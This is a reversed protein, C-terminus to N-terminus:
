NRGKWDDPDLKLISQFYHDYDILENYEADSLSLYADREHSITTLMAGKTERLFAIDEPLNPQEWEYLSHSVRKIIALCSESIQYEYAMVPQDSSSKTGPWETVEKQTIL